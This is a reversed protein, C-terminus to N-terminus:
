RHAVAQSGPSGSWSDSVGIVAAQGLPPSAPVDASETRCWVPPRPVVDLFRNPIRAQRAPSAQTNGAAIM